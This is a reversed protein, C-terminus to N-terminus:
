READGAIKDLYASLTRSFPNRVFCFAFRSTRVFEQLEYADGPWRLPSKRRDHIDLLSSSYGYRAPIPNTRTTAQQGLEACQLTYKITSCAVKPTDVYLYRYRSSYHVHGLLLMDSVSNKNEQAKMVKKGSSVVAPRQAVGRSDM